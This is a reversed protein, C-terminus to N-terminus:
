VEVKTPIKIAGRKRDQSPVGYRRGPSATGRGDLGTGLRTTQCDRILFEYRGTDVRTTHKEIQKRRAEKKGARQEREERLRAHHREHRELADLEPDLKDKEYAILHPHPIRADAAKLVPREHGPKGVIEISTDKWPEVSQGGQAIDAEDPLRPAGSFIRGADVRNFQRSESTPYFLQPLTMSHVPLDNVTEHPVPPTKLPTSPVMSHIAEAYPLALPKNEARWQKELEQLRVVAGVRRMEVGLEVSVNRISKKDVKVRRWIEERLEESLIPQSFFHENLPFPRRPEERAGKERAPSDAQEGAADPEKHRRFGRKDYDTLYNTKGEVPDLFNKGHSNLWSFMDTRLRTMDCSRTSSFRRRWPRKCEPCHKAATASPTLSATFSSLPVQIYQLARRTM